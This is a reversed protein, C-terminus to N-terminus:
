LAMRLVAAIGVGGAAASALGTLAGLVRRGRQSRVYDDLVVDAGVKFHLCLVALSLTLLAANWPRAVWVTVAEHGASSHAVLCAGLWPVVPILVVASVRQVWWQRVVSRTSGPRPDKSARPAAGISM